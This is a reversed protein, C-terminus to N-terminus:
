LTAASSAALGRSHPDGAQGLTFRAGAGRGVVHKSASKVSFLLNPQSRYGDDEARYLDDASNGVELTGAGLEAPGPTTVGPHLALRRLSLNM